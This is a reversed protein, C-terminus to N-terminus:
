PEHDSLGSAHIGSAALFKYGSTQPLTALRHM